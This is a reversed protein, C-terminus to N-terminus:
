ASGSSIAWPTPRTAAPATLWALTPRRLRPTLHPRAPRRRSTLNASTAVANTADRGPGAGAQRSPHAATPVTHSQNSGKYFVYAAEPDRPTALRCHEQCAATDCACGEKGEARAACHRKAPPLFCAANM